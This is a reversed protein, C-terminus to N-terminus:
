CLFKDFKENCTYGCQREEASILGPHAEDALRWMEDRVRSNVGDAGAVVDGEYVSGDTCYVKVGKTTDEIRDLRKRLFVKNKDQIHDYM